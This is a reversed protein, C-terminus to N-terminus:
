QVEMTVIDGVQVSRSSDTVVAVSSSDDVRVVVLRGIVSPPLSPDENRADIFEDQQKTVYFSDGEAIGDAMGRNLFVTEREYTLMHRQNLREIIHGQMDGNPVEIDIQVKVPEIPAVFDGRHVESYSTQIAAVIYDGFQHVVKAEGIVEYLSGYSKFLTGVVPVKRKTRRIISVMDGCEHDDPFKMEMYVLDREILFSQNRPSRSVKGYTHLSEHPKIFGPVIFIGTNQPFDFRVDPGCSTETAEFAVEQVAYGDREQTELDVKPPEILTGLTFVIQNGPYIWHPNTIYENVSWLEPWSNPDGMFASSLEWLTDGPQITYVDPRYSGGADVEGPQAQATATFSFAIAGLFIKKIYRMTQEM